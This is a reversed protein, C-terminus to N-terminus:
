GSAADTSATTHLLFLFPMCPTDTGPTNGKYVQGDIVVQSVFGHASVLPVLALLGLLFSLSPSLLKAM